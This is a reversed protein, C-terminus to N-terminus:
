KANRGTSGTMMGAFTVASATILAMAALTLTATPKM